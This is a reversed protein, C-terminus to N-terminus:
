ETKSGWLKILFFLCVLFYGTTFMGNLYMLRISFLDNTLVSGLWLSSYITLWGLGLRLSVRSIKKTKFQNESKSLVSILAFFIGVIPMLYLSLWFKNLNEQRYNDKM